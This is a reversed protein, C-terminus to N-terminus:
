AYNCMGFVCRKTCKNFCRNCHQKNSLLNVCKGGCCAQPFRCVTGCKGCNRLDTKADVCIGHCCTPGPSGPALCISKHSSCRRFSPALAAALFRSRGSASTLHNEETIAPSGEIGIGAADLTAASALALAMLYITLKRM